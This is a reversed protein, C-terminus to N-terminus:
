DFFLGEVISMMLPSVSLLLPYDVVGHDVSISRALPIPSSDDRSDAFPCVDAWAITLRLLANAEVPEIRRIQDFVRPKIERAIVGQLAGNLTFTLARRRPIGDVGQPADSRNSVAVDVELCTYIGQQASRRGDQRMLPKVGHLTCRLLSVALKLVFLVRGRFDNRGVYTSQFVRM